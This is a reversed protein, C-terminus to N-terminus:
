VLDSLQASRTFGEAMEAVIKATLTLRDLMAPDLGKGPAAEMDKRNADLLRAVDREAAQAITMLAHNKASTDAKAMARSANRAAIGISHMYSQIDMHKM